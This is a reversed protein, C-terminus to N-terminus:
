MGIGHMCKVCLVLPFKSEIQYSAVLHSPSMLCSIRSECSAPALFPETANRLPVQRAASEVCRQVRCWRAAHQVAWARMRWSVSAGCMHWATASSEPTLRLPFVSTLATRRGIVGYDLVLSPHLLLLLTNTVQSKEM